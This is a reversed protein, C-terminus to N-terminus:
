AAVEPRGALLADLRVTKRGEREAVFVRDRIVAAFGLEKVLLRRDNDQRVILERRADQESKRIYQQFSVEEGIREDKHVILDELETVKAAYAALAAAVVDAPPTSFHSLRTLSAKLEDDAASM